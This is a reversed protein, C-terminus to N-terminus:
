SQSSTRKRKKEPSAKKEAETSSQPELTKVERAKLATQRQAEDDDARSKAIAGFQRAPLHWIGHRGRATLNALMERIAGYLIQYGSFRVARFRDAGEFKDDGVYSFYGRAEIEFDYPTLTENGESAVKIGYFLVFHRPDNLEEDPYVLDSRTLFKVDHADFDLQPFIQDRDFDGVNHKVSIKDFEIRDILLLQASM